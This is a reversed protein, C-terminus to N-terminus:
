YKIPNRNSKTIIKKTSYNMTGDDSPNKKVDYPSKKALTHETSNTNM